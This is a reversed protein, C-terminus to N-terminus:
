RTAFAALLINVADEALPRGTVAAYAALNARAAACPDAPPAPRHGTRLAHRSLAAQQLREADLEAAKVQARLGGSDDFPATKLARRVARMPRVVQDRWPRVLAEASAIEAEALRVGSAARWLLFLVLNVDAGAEDQCRLCAPAVGPLGYFRLSFDWFPTDM